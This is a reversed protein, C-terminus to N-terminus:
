AGFQRLHYDVHKAGLRGWEHGSLRGFAPHPAWEASPPRESFRDVLAALAAVDADWEAPKTSQMMPDTPIKGKPWPLWYVVIQRLVRHRLIMENQTSELDGLCVRLQDAVHCIMQHANMRGWLAANDPRLRTLRAKIADRVSADFLTSM